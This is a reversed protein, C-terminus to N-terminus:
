IYRLLGLSNYSDKIRLICTILNEKKKLVNCIEIELPGPFSGELNIIM